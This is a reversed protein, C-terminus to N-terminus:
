ARRWRALGWAVAASSAAFLTWQPLVDLSGFRSVGMAVFIAGDGLAMAAAGWALAKATARGTALLALGVAVLALHWTIMHWAALATARVEAGLPAADIPAAVDPIGLAAHVLATVALMASGLAFGPNM